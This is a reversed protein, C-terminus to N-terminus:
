ADSKDKFGKSREQLEDSAGGRLLCQVLLDCFKSLRGRAGYHLAEPTTNLFETPM